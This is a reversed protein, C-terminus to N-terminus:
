MEVREIKKEYERVANVTQEGKYKLGYREQLHGCMKYRDSKMYKNRKKFLMAM